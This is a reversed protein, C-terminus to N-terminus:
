LVRGEWWSRNRLYWDVTKRLGDDFSVQPRWGLENRLKDTALSYRFDHGPRDEVQEIQSDPLGLLDLIRRAVELNSITNEAGIHYVEGIRGKQRVLDVAECHDTVFLWDREQMGSGYIPLKEGSISRLILKPILKEPHQNPGYNNTCRTIVVPLGYTQHFALCFLDASAKSASYPNGPNLPTDETARGEPFSGYVEDTSIQVYKKVKAERAANLLSLTGAVNSRLFPESSQISRDVHSEAAFHVVYDVSFQSFIYQIAERDTVDAQVFVHRKEDLLDQINDLNGSYTLLDVNIVRMHPYKRLLLRVYHSGIFGAGGTVLVTNTM